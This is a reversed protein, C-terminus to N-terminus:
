HLTPPPQLSSAIQRVTIAPVEGLVTLQYGSKVMSYTSVAGMMTYGERRPTGEQLQEVFVSVMALGDSFVMHEIPVPSGSATRLQSNKLEFGQPLWGIRWGLGNKSTDIVTDEGWHTQWTHGIGRIGPQLLSDPIEEPLTINTFMIQELIKGHRNLLSTRLLLFTDADIWYRYTYRYAGRPEISVIWAERDAVRDRGALRFRYYHTLRSIAQQNIEPFINRPRSPEIMVSHREPLICTVTQNDRLVEGGNGTLSILRENEMGDRYRHIIRLSALSNEKQYVFTGDYNKQELAQTMANLLQRPDPAAALVVPSAFLVLLLSVVRAPMPVALIGVAENMRTM